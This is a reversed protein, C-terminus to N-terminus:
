LNDQAAIWDLESLLYKNKRFNCSRCAVRLNTAAHIGGRCLPIVHDLTIQDDNLARACIYCTRKDREIIAARNVAEYHARKKHARRKAYYERFQEKNIERYRRKTTAGIGAYWKREYERQKEPNARRAARQRERVKTRNTANWANIRARDRAKAGEGSRYARNRESRCQRCEGQRGEPNTPTRWRAFAEIPKTEKCRSCRKTEM